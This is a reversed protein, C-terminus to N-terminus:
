KLWELACEHEYKAMQCTHMNEKRQKGKYIRKLGTVLKQTLCHTGYDWQTTEYAQLCSIKM